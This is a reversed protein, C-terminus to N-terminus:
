SRPPATRGGQKGLQVRIQFRDPGPGPPSGCGAHRSVALKSRLSGSVPNSGVSSSSAALAGCMSSVPNPLSSTSSMSASSLSSGVLGAADSHSGLLLQGQRVELIGEGLHLGMLPPSVGRAPALCRSQFRCAAPRHRHRIGAARLLFGILAEGQIHPQVTEGLHQRLGVAKIHIGIVAPPLWVPDPGPRGRSRRCPSRGRTAPLPPPGPCRAGACRACFSGAAQALCARDDMCSPLGCAREKFRGMGPRPSKLGLAAIRGAEKM